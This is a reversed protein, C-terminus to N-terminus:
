AMETQLAHIPQAFAQSALLIAERIAEVTIEKRNYDQVIEEMSRGEALWALIIRPEIRTYKFTPRGGCIGPAAVIYRGLSYYEYVEGGYIEREILITNKTANNSTQLNITM